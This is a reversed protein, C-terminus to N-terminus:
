LSETWIRAAKAMRPDSAAATFAKTAAEKNGLRSHAIGLMMNADDVRKVRAVREASLGREIADIAKQNEGLGLYVLGVKVDAEGNKGAQAEKDLAAVQKKDEAAQQKAQALMRSNHDSAAILKVAGLQIGKNLVTLAETPSGAELADESFEVFESERTLFDKAVEFRRINFKAKPDIKQQEYILMLDYIYDHKLFRKVLQEMVAQRKENDKLEYYCANQQRLETETPERGAVAKELAVIGHTCDHQTYYLQWLLTDAEPNPAYQQWKQTYEIAKQYDKQGGYFQSLTKYSQGREEVPFEDLQVLQETTAVYNPIDHLKGYGARIYILSQVKDYPTVALELAEKALGIGKEADGKNLAEGAAKLKDRVKPSLEQKKEENKKEAAVAQTAFPPAATLVFAAGLVVAGLRAGFGAKSNRM